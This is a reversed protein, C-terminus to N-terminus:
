LHAWPAAPFAYGVDLSFLCRQDYSHTWARARPPLMSFAVKPSRAEYHPLELRPGRRRTVTDAAARRSTVHRPAPLPGHFVVRDQRPLAAATGTGTGAPAAHALLMEVAVGHAAVFMVGARTKAGAVGRWAVM